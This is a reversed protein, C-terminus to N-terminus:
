GSRLQRTLHFHKDLNALDALLALNPDKTVADEVDKGSIPVKAAPDKLADKLHYARMFFSMLEGTAKDISDRSMGGPRKATVDDVETQLAEWRRRWDNPRAAPMLTATAEDTFTLTESVTLAHNVAIEGCVPCPTRPTRPTDALRPTGCKSCKAESIAVDDPMCGSRLWAGTLVWLYCTTRSRPGRSLM